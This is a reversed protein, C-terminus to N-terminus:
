NDREELIMKSLSRGKMLLKLRSKKWSPIQAEDAVPPSIEAIARGHRLVVLTEGKEVKSFFDSANKRFETFTVTKM